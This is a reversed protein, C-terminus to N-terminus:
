RRARNRADGASNAVVRQRASLHRRRNSEIAFDENLTGIFTDEPDLIVRYDAIEPIAGGSTQALLRSGRRGRLISNVEDRHVLAARRGRRTSFGEASM